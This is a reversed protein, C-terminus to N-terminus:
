PVTGDHLVKYTTGGVSIEIHQNGSGASATGGTTGAGSAVRVNNEKLDGSVEFSDITTGTRRIVLAPAFADEADNAAQLIYRGSDSLVRWVGEDALSGIDDMWFTATVKSIRQDSTFTNEGDALVVESGDVTASTTFAPSALPAKLNLQSQIASTVGDLYGIETVTLGAPIGDLVNLEAATSTVGDLINLEAATATLDTIDTTLWNTNLTAVAVGGQNLTGPVNVVGDARADLVLKDYTFDVTYNGSGSIVQFGDTPGNERIGVTVHATKTGEILLGLSTGVVISDIDTDSITWERISGANVSSGYSQVGTFTNAGLTALGTGDLTASGTFAPSALPAKANLQTQIASTVGDLYGIETATLTGPIGDLVNIEVATSTLGLNILATAPIPIDSLNNAAVVRALVAAEATAFGTEIDEFDAAEVFGVGDIKSYTFYAM